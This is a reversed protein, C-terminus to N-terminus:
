EEIAEGTENIGYKVLEVGFLIATLIAFLFAIIGVVLV